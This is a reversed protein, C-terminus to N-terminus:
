EKSNAPQDLWNQLAARAAQGDDGQGLKDIPSLNTQVTLVGANGGMKPLNEKMRCEDRTYIGNQVMGSYLTARAASDARLLGEISFESYIQRRQAPTLLNRNIGEEIRRMYSRLTFTLFRLLKQELGTGWNSAKDSYGVMTPDVMYFRCIEEASYERSELLQADVPNIGIVKASVGEELVPSKGANMAGSIRQVYDRFDDRQKPSLTKNVEFAVTQHMGNKFTSGAVDEASMAAGFVDAGYAIPSLGIQGDLSFAPIHMMDSGAIDRLQGNKERYRYLIEGNDAVDLDMRNPLLFELAVIRGGIRVIEVFANGRLLMSAVVAEWFQVATMRSNPNTNIIWHLDNDSDVKRGGDAQRMYLGLPLTAITESILRVCSWCAALRMAKNVTITKGTTSTSGVTQAWIGGAGGSLSRGVWDIISTQPASVASSLVSLLSKAM